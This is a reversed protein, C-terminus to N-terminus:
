WDASQACCVRATSARRPWVARTPSMSEGVGQVLARMAQVLARMEASAITPADGSEDVDDDDGGGDNGGDEGDDGGGSEDDGGGGENEGDGGGDDGGDNEDDGSTSPLSHPDCSGSSKRKKSEAPM